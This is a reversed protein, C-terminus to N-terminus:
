TYAYPDMSKYLKDIDLVGNGIKKVIKYNEKTPEFVYGGIIKNSGRRGVKSHTTVNLWDGETRGMRLEDKEIPTFKAWKYDVDGPNTLYEEVFQRRLNKPVKPLYEDFWEEWQPGYPLLDWTDTDRPAEGMGIGGEDGANSKDKLNLQAELVYAKGDVNDHKINKDPRLRSNPSDISFLIALEINPTWYKKDQVFELDGNLSGILYRINPVGRFFTHYERAENIQQLKM